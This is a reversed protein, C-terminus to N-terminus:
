SVIKTIKIKTQSARFGRVKRYRSKAKYKLVRIKEGKLNELVDAEVRAGQVIPSGVTANDGDVVLLVKDFVTKGEAAIRDTILELGEEVKYQKGAIDVVAYKM